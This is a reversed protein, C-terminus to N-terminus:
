TQYTADALAQRLEESSRLVRSVFGWHNQGSDEADPLRKRGITILRVRDGGEPRLVIQFRRVDLLGHPAEEGIDPRYLFFIDGRELVVMGGALGADQDQGFTRGSEARRRTQGTGAM